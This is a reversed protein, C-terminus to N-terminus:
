SIVQYRKLGLVAMKPHSLMSKALQFVVYRLMFAYREPGLLVDKV